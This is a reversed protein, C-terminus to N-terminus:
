VFHIHRYSVLVCSHLITNVDLIFKYRRKYINESYPFSTSCIRFNGSANNLFFTYFFYRYYIIFWCSAVRATDHKNVVVLMLMLMLRHFINQSVAQIKM